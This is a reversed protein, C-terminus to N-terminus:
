WLTVGLMLNAPVWKFVQTSLPVTLTVSYTDQGHVCHLTARLSSGLSSSKSALTSGMLSIHRGFKSM